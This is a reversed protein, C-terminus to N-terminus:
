IEVCAADDRRLAITSGRVRFALAGGFAAGAIRRVQTGPVFGLEQLRRGLAAHGGVRRIRAEQGNGLRSLDSNM